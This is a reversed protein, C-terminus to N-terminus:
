AYQPESRDLLLDLGTFISEKYRGTSLWSCPIWGNGTWYAGVLIREDDGQDSYIIARNGSRTLAEAPFDL